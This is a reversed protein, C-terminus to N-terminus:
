LFKNIGTQVLTLRSVPAYTEKLDYSNTDKFGQIVLRAKYKINGFSDTKRKFVWKSNIINSIKGDKRVKPRDLTWVENKEMSKLEDNIAKIWENKEKSQIAQKFKQPDNNIEAHLCHLIEDDSIDKKQKRLNKRKLQFSM